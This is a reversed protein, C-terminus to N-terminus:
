GPRGGFDGFCGLRAGSRRVAERCEAALLGDLESRYRYGAAHGPFDDRTAPHLYLENISGGIRDIAQTIERSTMHGSARMGFVRDPVLMGRRRARNRLSRAFPAALWGSGTPLGPEVPARLATVGYRTAADLVMGALVPHVHFHEHANVHDMRLGTAAFAAFQQDIEQQLQERVRPLMAIRLGVSGHGRRFRGDEGVLDPVRSAPSVPRGDTLDLHLGVGLTPLRRARAVADAAAPGAVMLSAATLIGRTHALEVAENVEVAAGFDDATVVLLTV